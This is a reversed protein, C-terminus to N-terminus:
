KQASSLVPPPQKLKLLFRLEGYFDGDTARILLSAGESAVAPMPFQLVTSGQDDTQEFTCHIREKGREVLAEIEANAVGQGNKKRRLGVELRAIGGKLWTKPNKLQVELGEGTGETSPDPQSKEQGRLVLTGAEL